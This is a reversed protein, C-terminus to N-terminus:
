DSQYITQRLDNHWLAGEASVDEAMKKPFPIRKPRFPSESRSGHSWCISQAHCCIPFIMLQGIQVSGAVKLVAPRGPALNASKAGPRHQRQCLHRAAGDLVRKYRRAIAGLRISAHEAMRCVNEM